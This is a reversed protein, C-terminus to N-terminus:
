NNNWTVREYWPTKALIKSLRNKFKDKLRTLKDLEHVLTTVQEELKTNTEKLNEIYEAEAHRQKSVDVLKERWEKDKEVGLQDLAEEASSAMSEKECKARERFRTFEKKASSLQKQLQGNTLELSANEAEMKNAYEGLQEITDLLGSMRNYELELIRDRLKEKKQLAQVYRNLRGLAIKNELVESNLKRIYRNNFDDRTVLQTEVASMTNIQDKM